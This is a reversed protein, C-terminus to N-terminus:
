RGRRRRTAGLLLLLALTGLGAGPGAPATACGGSGGVENTGGDGRAPPRDCIFTQGDGSDICKSDNPCPNGNPQCVATCFGNNQGDVCISSRCHINETCPAGTAGPPIPTSSLCFGDASCYYGVPCYLNQAENCAQTCYSQEAFICWTSNCDENRSCAAGLAGGTPAPPLDICNGNQCKRNSGCQADTTCTPPPPTSGVTVTVTASTGVNGYPDSAKAWLQHQGDSLQYLTFEYPTTWISDVLAGDKYMEVTTIGSADTATVTVKFYSPQTSGNAPSTITVTPPTTEPNVGGGGIAKTLYLKDDQYNNTSCNSEGSRTTAAGWTLGGQGTEAWFMIDNQRNIHALGYTHANEHAITYVLDWLSMGYAAMDESCIFNVDLPNLNLQEGPACDLPSVGLVGQEMGILAASGGIMTMMYDGSTPRTRTFAVNYGAYVQQLNSVVANIVTDRNSGWHAANFAPITVNHGPIWSTNTTANSDYSSYRIAQGDFNLFVVTTGGDRYRHRSEWRARITAEVEPPYRLVVEWPATPVQYPRLPVSSVAVDPLGPDGPDTPAVPLEPTSLARVAPDANETPRPLGDCAVGLLGVGVALALGLIRSSTTTDNMRPRDM